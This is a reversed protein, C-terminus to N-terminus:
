QGSGEGAGGKGGRLLDNVKGKKEEQFWGGMQWVPYDM